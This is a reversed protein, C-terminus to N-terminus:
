CARMEGVVPVRCLRQREEKQFLKSLWPAEKWMKFFISFSGLHLYNGPITITSM